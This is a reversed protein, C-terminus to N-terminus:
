ATRVMPWPRVTAIAGSAPWHFLEGSRAAVLHSMSTCPYCARDSAQAAWEQPHSTDDVEARCHIGGGSHVLGQPTTAQSVCAQVAARAVLITNQLRENWSYYPPSVPFPNCVFSPKM